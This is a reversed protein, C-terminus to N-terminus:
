YGYRLKRKIEEIEMLLLPIMGIEFEMDKVKRELDEVESELDEVKQELDEVEGKLDEVEQYLSATVDDTAQIINKVERELFAVALILDEIKWKSAKKSIVPPKQQTTGTGSPEDIVINRPDPLDPIINKPDQSENQSLPTFVCYNVPPKQQTTGCRPCKWTQTSKTPFTIDGSSYNPNSNSYNYVDEAQAYCVFLLLFLLVMYYKM